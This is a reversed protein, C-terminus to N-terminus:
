DDSKSTDHVTKFATGFSSPSWAHNIFQLHWSLQSFVTLSSQQVLRKGESKATFQSSSFAMRFTFTQIPLPVGYRNVKIVRRGHQTEPSHFAKNKCPLGLLSNAYPRPKGHSFLAKIGRLILMAATHYPDIAASWAENVAKVTGHLESPLM